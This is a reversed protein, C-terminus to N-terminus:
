MKKVETDNIWHYYLKKNESYKNSTTILVEDYKKSIDRNVTTLLETPNVYEERHVFENVNKSKENVVTFSKLNLM